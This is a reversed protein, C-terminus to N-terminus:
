PIKKVKFDTFIDGTFRLDNEVSSFNIDDLPKISMISIDTGRLSLEVNIM